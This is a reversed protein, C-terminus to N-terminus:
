CLVRPVLQLLQGLLNGLVTKITGKEKDVKEREKGNSGITNGTPEHNTGSGASGSASSQGWDRIGIGSNRISAYSSREESMVALGAAAATAPDTLLSTQSYSIQRAHSKTLNPLSTASSNASPSRTHTSTLDRLSNTLPPPAPRSPSSPNSHTLSNM